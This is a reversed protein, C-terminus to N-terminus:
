KVVGEHNIVDTKNENKIFLEYLRVVVRELIAEITGGVTKEPLTGSIVRTSDGVLTANFPKQDYIKKGFIPIWLLEGYKIATKTLYLDKKLNM